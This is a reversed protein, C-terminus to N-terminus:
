VGETADQTIPKPIPAHRVDPLYQPPIAETLSQGAALTVNIIIPPSPELKPVRRGGGWEEPQRSRLYDRAARWDKKSAEEWVRVLKIAHISEAAQVETVFQSYPSKIQNAHDRRGRQMWHRYTRDSIGYRRTAMRIPIGESACHRIFGLYVENFKTNNPHVIENEMM